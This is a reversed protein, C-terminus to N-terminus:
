KLVINQKGPSLEFYYKKVTNVECIKIDPKVKQHM